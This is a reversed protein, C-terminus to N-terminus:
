EEKKLSALEQYLSCTELLTKHTGEAIVKGEDFVLIKDANMVTSINHAVLVMTKGRMKEDLASQIKETAVIDLASTAEDLLMIDTESLMARAMSLKQKQGGSLKEARNGVEYDLGGLLKVFSNADAKELAEWLVADSIEDSQGYTLIDRISGSFGPANQPVYSFMKRYSTIDYDSVPAGGMRIEGSDPHYFQEILNLATSKGSGSFGVFATKKGEEITFSVHDLVMHDGFKKTVDKFEIDGTKGQKTEVTREDPLELIKSLRYTAGQSNKVLVWLPLHAVVYGIFTGALSYYAVFAATEVKGTLVMVAGIGVVTTTPILTSVIKMGEGIRTIFAKKKLARELDKIVKDGSEAEYEQNNYSKIIPMNNVKEGIKATLKSIATQAVDAKGFTFVGVIWSIFFTVPISLLM